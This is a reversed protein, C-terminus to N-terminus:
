HILNNVLEIEDLTADGANSTELLADYVDRLAIQLEDDLEDSNKTRRTHSAQLTPEDEDSRADCERRKKM